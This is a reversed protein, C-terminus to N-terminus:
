IHTLPLRITDKLSCYYFTNMVLLVIDEL